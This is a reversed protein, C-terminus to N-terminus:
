SSLCIETDCDCMGHTIVNLIVSCNSVTVRACYFWANLKTTNIFYPTNNVLIEGM